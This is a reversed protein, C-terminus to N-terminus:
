NDYYALRVNGQFTPVNTGNTGIFMIYVGNKEIDTSATGNYRAHMNLPIMEKITIAPNNATINFTKDYLISFRGVNLKNIMALPAQSEFVADYGPTTDGVQEKDVVCVVRVFDTSATSSANRAMNFYLYAYKMLISNGTRAGEGDGTAIANILSVGATTAFTTSFATDLKHKEVNVLGKIFKIGSWAAKAINFASSAVAGIKNPKRVPRRRKVIRKGKRFMSRKKGYSPM